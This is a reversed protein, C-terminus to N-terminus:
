EHEPLWASSVGTAKNWGIVKAPKGESCFRGKRSPARELLIARPQGRRKGSWMVWAQGILIGWKGLRSSSSWRVCLVWSAQRGKKQDPAALGAAAESLGDEGQPPPLLDSLPLSLSHTHTHFGLLVMQIELHLQAQLPIVEIFWFIGGEKKRYSSQM